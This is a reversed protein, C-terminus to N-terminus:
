KSKGGSLALKLGFLAGVGFLGAIALATPYQNTQVASGLGLVACFLFIIFGLARM